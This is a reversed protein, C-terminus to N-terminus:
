CIVPRAFIESVLQSIPFLSFTQGGREDIGHHRPGVSLNVREPIQHCQSRKAQETILMAHHKVFETSGRPIQASM